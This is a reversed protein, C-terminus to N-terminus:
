KKRRNVRRVSQVVAALLLLIASGTTFWTTIPSIVTLNLPLRKPSGVPEGSVTFLQALLVSSGSAVVEVKLAVEVKSQAPLIITEPQEVIVKGNQPLVELLLTIETDFDNVVTIPIKEKTSTITYKGVVLRIKNEIARVGLVYNKALVASLPKILLPNLLKAIRLRDNEVGISIALKSVGRMKKRLLTYQAYQTYQTHLDRALLSAGAINPVVDVDIERNLFLALRARGANQYRQLEGPAAKNLWSTDPNGYAFASVRTRGIASKLTSLYLDAILTGEGDVVENKENLVKYGKSMVQIEELLSVDIIWTHPGRSRKYLLAGLRGNPTLSTILEDDFFTGDFLQHTRDTISIASTAAASAKSNILPTAFFFLLLSLFIASFRKM